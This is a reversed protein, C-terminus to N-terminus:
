ASKGSATSSRRTFSGENIKYWYDVLFQSLERHLAFRVFEEHYEQAASARFLVAVSSLM